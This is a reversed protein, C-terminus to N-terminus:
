VAWCRSAAVQRALCSLKEVLLHTQSKELWPHTVLKLAEEEKSSGLRHQKAFRRKLSVPVVM